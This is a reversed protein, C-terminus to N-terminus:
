RDMAAKTPPVRPMLRSGTLLLSLPLSISTPLAPKDRLAALPLRGIRGNFDKFPRIWQFREDDAVCRGRSWVPSM